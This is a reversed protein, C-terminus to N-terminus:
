DPERRALSNEIHESFQLAHSSIERTRPLYLSVKRVILPDTVPRSVLGMMHALPAVYDPSYTIGLGAAALGLATSIHEVHLAPHATVGTKQEIRPNVSELHDSGAAYLTHSALDPWCISPQFALPYAPDMWLVWDTDYLDNRMVTEGVPRDPGLAIEADGFAVRDAMWEVGTDVIRIDVSPAVARFSSILPPLIAASIALPAAIRVIDRSGSKVDKAAQRAHELQRSVQLAAPLFDRGQRTLKVRRTTREFLRFELANELESILNSVASPTLNMTAACEKFRGCEAVRIFAELQRPTFHM